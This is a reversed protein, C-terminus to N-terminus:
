VFDNCDSYRREYEEEIEFEVEAITDELEEILEQNKDRRASALQRTLDSLRQELKNM